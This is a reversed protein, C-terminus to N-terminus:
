VRYLGVCIHSLTSPEDTHVEGNPILTHGKWMYGLTKSSYTNVRVKSSRDVHSLSLDETILTMCFQEFHSIPRTIQHHNLTCRDWIHYKKPHRGCLLGNSIDIYYGLFRLFDRQCWFCSISWKLHYGCFFILCILVKCVSLNSTMALNKRRGPLLLCQLM